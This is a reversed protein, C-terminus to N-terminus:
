RAREAADPCEAPGLKRFILPDNFIRSFYGNQWYYDVRPVLKYGDIDFTYQGGVAITNPPLGLVKKGGLNVGIGLLSIGPGDSTSSYHYYDTPSSPGNLAHMEANIATWNTTCTGYNAFQVNNITNPTGRLAAAGGLPDTYPSPAGTTLLYAAKLTADSGPDTGQTTILVCNQGPTNGTTLSLDKVLVANTRGATPNRQDVAYQGKGISSDSDTVNLNFSWHEDPQWILEGEEGWMQANFNQTFLTSYAIVTYQFNKYDYYWATLNAQLTGDLFTNKAGVEYSTLDEPKFSAPVFAAAPGTILNVNGAKSGLAYSAYVM